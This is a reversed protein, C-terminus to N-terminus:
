EFTGRGDGSALLTGCRKGKEKRGGSLDSQIHKKGQGSRDSIRDAKEAPEKSGPQKEGYFEDAKRKQEEKDAM